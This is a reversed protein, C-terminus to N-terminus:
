NKVALLSEEGTASEKQQRIQEIVAPIIDFVDGVIGLHAVDFVPANKDKNIAIIYDSNQMGVLHQIAGSIGCAIYLEAQGDKGDSRGSASPLWGADVVCRSCGM